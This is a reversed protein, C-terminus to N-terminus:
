PKFMLYGMALCGLTAIGAVICALLARKEAKLARTELKAAREHEQAGYAVAEADHQELARATKDATVLATQLDTNNRTMAQLAGLTKAEHTEAEDARKGAERSIAQLHRLTKVIDERSIQDLQDDTLEAPHVTLALMTVLALIWPLAKM